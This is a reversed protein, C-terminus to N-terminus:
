PAMTLKQSFQAVKAPLDQARVGQPLRLLLPPPPHSHHCHHPHHLSRLHMCAQRMAERM